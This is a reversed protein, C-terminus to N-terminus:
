QSNIEIAEFIAKFTYKRFDRIIDSLNENKASVILHCNNTMVVWTYIEFDKEWRCFRLSGLLMEAYAYRFIIFVDIWQHVTLAIFHVAAQDKIAYGFGM